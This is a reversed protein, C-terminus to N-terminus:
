SGVVAACGPVDSVPRGATAVRGVFAPDCTALVDKAGVAAVRANPDVADVDLGRERWQLTYFRLQPAYDQLGDDNYVGGDVTRVPRKLSALQQFLLGYRSQPSNEFPPLLVFLYRVADGVMLATFAAAFAGIAITRAPGRARIWAPAGRLLADILRKAALVFSVSLIPYLPVLYWFIKTGGFSYVLLTAVVVSNAYTLFAAARSPKWKLVVLALPLVFAPGLAFLSGLMELYYLPSKVHSPLGHLYRGGLEWRMVASLYGPGIAERLAYYGGVLVLVILGALAYWPTSLLRRWRNRLVVYVAVGGGPILGAVGKTLCAAAILLGILILRVPQPRRRHIEDFLLFLYATVFLGLMADYDGSIAAHDGFFGPSFLLVLAAGAAFLRSRILRWANAFTVAVTTLAALGNPLRLAWESPGFLRLSGAELWILLPPKTNWLDPRFGYTTVLSLGRERMELANVALRSEDWLVIHRSVIAPGILGAAVLLVGLAWPWARWFHARPNPLRKPPVVQGEAGSCRVQGRRSVALALGRNPWVRGRAKNPGGAVRVTATLTLGPAEM